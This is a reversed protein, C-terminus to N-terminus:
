YFDPFKDLIGKGFKYGAIYARLAELMKESEGDTHEGSYAASMYKGAAVETADRIVDALDDNLMDEKFEERFEYTKAQVLRDNM